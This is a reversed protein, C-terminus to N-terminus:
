KWYDTILSQKKDGERTLKTYSLRAAMLISVMERKTAISWQEIQEDTYEVLHYQMYHVMERFNQKFMWLTKELMEKERMKSISTESHLITNRQTWIPLFLQKWMVKVLHSTKSGIREKTFTAIAARWKTSSIGRLMLHKGIRKQDEIAEAVIRVPNSQLKIEEGECICQVTEMFPVSVQIPCQTSKLFARMVGFCANREM